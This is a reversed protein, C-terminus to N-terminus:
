ALAPLEINNAVGKNTIVMMVTPDFNEAVIKDLDFEILTEGPEVMQHEKVKVNFYKGNLKVTDLGIHILIESGDQTKLGIAHGTEYTMIVEAKAPAFLTGDKPKIAIGEGLVGSSFTSDNVETLPVVTGNIPVELKVDDVTSNNEVSEVVDDKWFILTLVFSLVLAIVLCLWAFLFNKANSKDVYMTMSAIGPGVLAFAKIGLIGVISGTIASSIMVSGLARKHQLAVGYLAPETIGFLASIAASIAIARMKEDKTRVAVGFCTGAESLNHALSAPLYLLERGTSTMTAVAYPILAKHMGTAVMLPLVCALLGTAVWGLHNFLFLIFSSIWTGIIYGIPGLLLLTAPVTIAMCILPVLFVRVPKPCYKTVYKELFAYLLIALIAPFVQSSYTINTVSLGFLKTGKTLLTILDPYVLVSAISVSVLVNVNLKQATTIAVLLPLFYLPASGIFTFIQYTSNTESIWGLSSFLILLSKLVGAGAIAPILPQFIGILFDLFIEYWKQKPANEAKGVNNGIDIKANVADFMEVVANGVIVQCQGSAIVAGLVGDIKKLADLNVKDYNALTFRLRTSCHILKAINEKNGVNKIIESASTGYDM